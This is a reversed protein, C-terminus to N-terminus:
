VFVDIGNLLKDEIFISEFLLNNVSQSVAQSDSLSKKVIAISKGKHGM